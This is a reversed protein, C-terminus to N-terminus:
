GGAGILIQFRVVFWIFGALIGWLTPQGESELEAESPLRGAVTRKIANGIASFTQGRHAVITAVLVALGWGFVMSLGMEVTPSLIMCGMVAIADATGAVNFLILASLTGFAIALIPSGLWFLIVTGAAVFLYTLWRNDFELIFVAAAAVAAVLSHVWNGYALGIALGFVLPAVTVPISINSRDRIDSWTSVALCYVQFLLLPLPAISMVWSRNSTM